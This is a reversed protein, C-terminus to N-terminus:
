DSWEDSEDGEEEDDEIDVRREAMKKKLMSAIDNSDVKVAENIVRDEAKKLKFGGQIQSLLDTSGTSPRPQQQQSSKTPINLKPAGSANFQPPPPLNAPPAMGPPPLLDAPPPMLEAPAPVSKQTEEQQQQPSNLDLLNPQQTQQVQQAQQHPINEKSLNSPPPRREKPATVIASADIVAGAKDEKNDISKQLEDLMTQPVKGEEVAQKVTEMLANVVEKEALHRPKVGAAKLIEKLEPSLWTTNIMLQKKMTTLARYKQPLVSSTKILKQMDKMQGSIILKSKDDSEDKKNFVKKFCDFLQGYTERLLTLSTKLGDMQVKQCESEVVTVAKIADPLARPDKAQMKQSKSISELKKQAKKVDNLKESKNSKVTKETTDIEKPLTVTDGKIVNLTNKFEESVDLLNSRWMKFVESVNKVGVSIDSHAPEGGELSLDAMVELASSLGETAKIMALQSKYYQECASALGKYPPVIKRLLYFTEVTCKDVQLMEDKTKM